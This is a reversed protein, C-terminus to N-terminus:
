RTIIIKQNVSGNENKGTIFYIGNALNSVKIEKNSSSLTATRVEQGLENIIKLDIAQDSTITFDGNSPNPYVSLNNASLTNNAIGICTAVRLLTIGSGKCGNADQGAVTYTQDASPTVTIAAAVEPTSGAWTYTAAGSATIVATGGKCIITPNSVATITPNPNVSVTVAGNVSCTVAGQTSTTNVSYTTTTNPTVNISSFGSGTSWQYTDMGSAILNVNTGRCV